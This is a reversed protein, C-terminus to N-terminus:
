QSVGGIACVQALPHQRSRTSLHIVTLGAIASLLSGVLVSLKALSAFALDTFALSAVFLSMTFGIGALLAAGYLQAWTVGQPLQGFGLRVAVWASGLVGVQKGIFLGSVIGLSVPNLLSKIAAGDIAIGANFFAFIPVVFLVGWPHLRREAERLPSTCRCGPAHMPVALAIIVGALTSAIGSKLMAIWLVLGVAVYAMPRMVRYINLLALGFAASIAILLPMMSIDQGYFLGIILVAGIDDFIALATLFVKLSAPVRSGLLSLVGLALVIDTATPVAWGRLAIPDTSNLVSYIAAPVAMGGLAALVPLAACKATSLHGELLQRKIELGVLLFFAVMLGENIWRVLPEDIVLPGFRFHVPAHHVLQYISALPSNAAGLALGMALIMLLGSTQEYRFLKKLEAM